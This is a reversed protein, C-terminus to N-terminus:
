AADMWRGVRLGGITPDGAVLEPLRAASARRSCTWHEVSFRRCVFTLNLTAGCGRRERARDAGGQRRRARRGPWRRRNRATRRRSASRARDDRGRDGGIARTRAACAADSRGRLCPQRWSAGSATGRGRAFTPSRPRRWSRCPARRACRLATGITGPMSRSAARRRPGRERAEAGAVPETVSTRPAPSRARARGPLAIEYRLRCRRDSARRALIM